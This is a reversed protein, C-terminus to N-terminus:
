ANTSEELAYHAGDYIQLIDELYDKPSMDSPTTFVLTYVAEYGGENTDFVEDLVCQIFPANDSMLDRCIQDAYIEPEVGQLDDDEFFVGLASKYM